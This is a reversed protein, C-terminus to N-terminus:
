AAMHWPARVSPDVYQGPQCNSGDEACPFNDHETWSAPTAWSCESEIGLLNGGRAIKFYGRDGWYEGWSNRVIWYSKGSASDKGWGVISVIHNVQQSASADDFIGGKYDVLPEANVGCAIPGRAYIEAAIRDAGDVSGYEAITANPYTSLGTCKGGYSTFTNCTRCTNIASCSYDRGQCGAESSDHSCAEYQLCTDYPINGAKKVFEYAATADGGNCSGAIQTGCNLIYQIALNVEVGQAKRAIKIRDALASMAGHAWCSGCYQPLHQNLSKTVYSVGKMNSWDWVEPISEPSIYSHPLPSVVHSRDVSGPLRKIESVYAASASGLLAAIVAVTAIM